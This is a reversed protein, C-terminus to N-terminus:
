TWRKNSGLKKSNSDRQQITKMSKLAENQILANDENVIVESLIEQIEKSKFGQMAKVIKWKLLSNSKVSQYLNILSIESSYDGFYFTIYGIADIAELKMYQNGSEIVSILAPLSDTGIGCLIRAAIDRAIPYTKKGLDINNVIRHQNVGISGLKGILLPISIKGINILAKQIEIKVYLAKEVTLADILIGACQANRNALIRIAITRQKPEKSHITEILKSDSLTIYPVLDEDTILGRRELQENTSKM